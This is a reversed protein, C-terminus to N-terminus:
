TCTLTEEYKSDIGCGVYRLKNNKDKQWRIPMIEVNYIQGYGYGTWNFFNSTEDGVGFSNNNGQSLLVSGQFIAVGPMTSVRGSFDISPIGQASINNVKIYYGAVNFRGNNHLTINIGNTGCAYSYSKLTISTGDPCDLSDAPVYTKMWAYMIGGLVVALGVLLVYGIIVSIGKKNVLKKNKKLSEPKPVKEFPENTQRSM